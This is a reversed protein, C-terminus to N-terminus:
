SVLDSIQALKPQIPLKLSHGFTHKESLASVSYRALFIDPRLGFVSVSHVFIQLFLPIKSYNSTELTM